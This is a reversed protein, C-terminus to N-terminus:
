LTLIDQLSSAYDHYLIARKEIVFLKDLQLKRLTDKSTSQIYSLQKRTSDETPTDTNIKKEVDATRRLVNSISVIKGTLKKEEELSDLLRKEIVTGVTECLKKFKEIREKCKEIKAEEIQAYAAIVDEEYTKISKHFDNLHISIMPIGIEADISYLLEKEAENQRIVERTVQKSAKEPKIRIKKEKPVTEFSLQVKKTEKESEGEEDEDESLDPIAHAKAISLSEKELLSIEDEEEIVEDVPISQRNVKYCIQRDELYHTVTTSTLIVVDFTGIPGKLDLAYSLQLPSPSNEKCKKLFRSINEQKKLTNRGPLYILFKKQHTPTLCELYKIKNNVAYNTTHTYGNELLLKEIKENSLYIPPPM